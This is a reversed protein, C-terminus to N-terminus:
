KSSPLKDVWEILSLIAALKGKSFESESETSVDALLWAWYGHEENEDEDWATDDENLKWGKPVSPLHTGEKFGITPYEINAPADDGNLGEYEYNWGGAMAGSVIYGKECLVRMPYAMDESIAIYPYIMDEDTHYIKHTETNFYTRWQGRVLAKKVAMELLLLKSDPCKRYRSSNPDAEWSKVADLSVGYENAFEEQSLGCLGRLEKITTDNRRKSRTSPVSIYYHVKYM